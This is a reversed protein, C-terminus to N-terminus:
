GGGPTADKSALKDLYFQLSQDKMDSM